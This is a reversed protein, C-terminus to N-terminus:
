GIEKIQGSVELRLNQFLNPIITLTKIFYINVFSIWYQSHAKSKQKQNIALM